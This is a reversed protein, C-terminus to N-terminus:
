ESISIGLKWPQSRRKPSSVRFFFFFFSLFAQMKQPEGRFCALSIQCGFCGERRAALYKQVFMGLPSYQLSVATKKKKKQRLSGGLMLVWLRGLSVNRPFPTIYDVYWLHRAPTANCAVTKGAHLRRRNGVFSIPSTQTCALSRQFYLLSQILFINGLDAFALYRQVKSKRLHFSYFLTVQLINWPM